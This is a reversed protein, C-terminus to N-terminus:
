ECSEGMTRLTEVRGTATEASTKGELAHVMVSYHSNFILDDQRALVYHQHRPQCQTNREKRANTEISM